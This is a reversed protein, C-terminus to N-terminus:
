RSRNTGFYQRLLPLCSVGSTTFNRAQYNSEADESQGPSEGCISMVKNSFLRAAWSLSITNQRACSDLGELTLEREGMRM